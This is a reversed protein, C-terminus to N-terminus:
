KATIREVAARVAPDRQSEVEDGKAVGLSQNFIEQKLRNQIWERDRLWDAVSPQIQHQGAYFQFDELVTPTVTFTETVHNKQTYDTAFSTMIGSGELAMRL